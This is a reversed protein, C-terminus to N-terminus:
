APMKALSNPRPPFGAPPPNATTTRLPSSEPRPRFPTSQPPYPSYPSAQAYPSYGYGGYAGAAGYSPGLSNLLDNNVFVDPSSTGVYSTQQAMAISTTLLLAATAAAGAIRALPSGSGYPSKVAVGTQMAGNLGRGSDEGNRVVM